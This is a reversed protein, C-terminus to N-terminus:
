KIKSRIDKEMLTIIEEDKTSKSIELFRTLMDKKVRIILVFSEGMPELAWNSGIYAPLLKAQFDKCEIYLSKLIEPETM